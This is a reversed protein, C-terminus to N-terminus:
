SRLVSAPDTKRIRLYPLWAAVLCVIVILFVSLAGVEWTLVVPAAPNTMEHACVVAAALGFLSGLFATGLAQSILFRSVYHDDAGMAKLTAFEKIRESVSAYLTQATVALGVLLGLVTALGFSMGIGTRVLWFEMCIWSYADRDHVVDVEHGRRALENTLRYIYTADGGFRYPPYFTTVMCFKM